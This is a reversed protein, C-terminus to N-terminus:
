IPGATRSQPRISATTSCYLLYNQGRNKTPFGIKETIHKLFFFKEQKIEM